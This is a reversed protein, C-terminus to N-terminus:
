ENHYARFYYTDYSKTFKSATRDYSDMIDKNKRDKEGDNMAQKVIDRVKKNRASKRFLQDRKKFFYEETIKVFREDDYDTISCGASRMIFGVINDTDHWGNKLEAMNMSVKVKKVNKEFDEINM